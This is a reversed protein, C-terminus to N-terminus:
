APPTPDRGQQRPQGLTSDGMVNRALVAEGERLVTAALFNSVRHYRLASDTRSAVVELDGAHPEGEYNRPLVLVAGADVQTGEFLGALAVDAIAVVDPAKALEFALRCLSAAARGM